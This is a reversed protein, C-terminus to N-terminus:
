GEAIVDVVEEMSGLQWTIRTVDGASQIILLGRRALRKLEEKVDLSELGFLGWCEHNLLANDGVDYFHLWHAIYLVTLEHIRIPQISRSSGRSSNLLGYDACCGLLYSSVRKVTTDSWIKQTKGERVAYTVFDKADDSSLANRGGSYRDWYVERIFDALVQNAECTYYLLLQTMVATPVRDSLAQLYIAADTKMYRPAFCEAVINRLRRASVLPFMGSSLAKEYLESTSTGPEFLSLLLKTEEVLGLGAQLQTTYIKPEASL